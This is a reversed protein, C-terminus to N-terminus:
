GHHVVTIRAPDAGLAQVADDATGQSVSVIHAARKAMRRLAWRAYRHALWSPCSDPYHYYILDHFTVVLPVPLRFPANWNPAHVVDPKWRMLAPALNWQERWSFPAIRRPFCVPRVRDGPPLWAMPDGPNVAVLVELDEAGGLHTVLRRVYRGIGTSGAMRADLVVRM